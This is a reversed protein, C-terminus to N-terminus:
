RRGSAGMVRYILMVTVPLFIFVGAWGLAYEGIWFTMALNFVLMIFYLAPGLFDLTPFFSLVYLGKVRRDIIGWFSLTVFSVIFWGVFNAITVGFYAGPEPYYYIKGLFWRDGRLTLPDIVVDLLMQLLAALFVVRFSFRGIGSGGRLDEDLRFYMGSGSAPSVLARATAWSAYALFTFSLSDMFPIGFIWLERDVTSPIYHYLGFPIGNRVSSFESLYAIFWASLTFLITKKPGVKYVSATLYMALFIFVYLRFAVTSIFLRLTDPM